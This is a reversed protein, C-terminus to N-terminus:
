TAGLAHASDYPPKNALGFRGGPGRSSDLASAPTCRGALHYPAAPTLSKLTLAHSSEAHGICVMTSKARSASCSPYPPSHSASWKMFLVPVESGDSCPTFSHKEQKAPSARM